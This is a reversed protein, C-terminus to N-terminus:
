LKAQATNEAAVQERLIRKLIKGNPSKPIESVFTVGGTIRKYSALKDAILKKVGEADITANPQRVVFARPKEEGKMEGPVGIVACDAIDPHALIIGELEPPAVQFGRVKILEQLHFHLSLSSNGSCLVFSVINLAM